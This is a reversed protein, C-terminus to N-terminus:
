LPYELGAPMQRGDSFPRNLARLVAASLGPRAHLLRFLNAATMRHRLAYALGRCSWTRWLFARRRRKTWQGVIQDNWNGLAAAVMPQCVQASALAWGIGEGTFPEVYGCADGLALVRQAGLRRRQRTLGPTGRWQAAELGEIAPWHCDRLIRGAVAGPGGAAHCAGWDLAAAVNLRGDELRVLGVYGHTGVAMYVTGSQYDGPGRDLIVGIGMRSARSIRWRAGPEGDLLRGALGDCALVLRASLEAERAGSRLVLTRTAAAPGAGARLHAWAGPLFQAGQGVAARVLAGDLEARSLVAYSAPLAWQVDVGWGALHENRLATAGSSSLVDGLGAAALM